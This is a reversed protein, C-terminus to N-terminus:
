QGEKKWHATVEWEDRNLKYANFGYSNSKSMIIPGSKSKCMTREIWIAADQSEEFKSEVIMIIEYSNRVKKQELFVSGNILSSGQYIYEEEGRRMRELSLIQEVQPLTNRNSHEEYEELKSICRVDSSIKFKVTQFYLSVDESNIGDDHHMSKAGLKVSRVRELSIAAQLMAYEIPYRRASTTMGCVEMPCRGLMASSPQHVFSDKLSEEICFEDVKAQPGITRAAYRYIQGDKCGITAKPGEGSLSAPDFNFIKLTTKIPITTGSFISCACSFSICISYIVVFISKNKM